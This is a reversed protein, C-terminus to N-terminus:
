TAGKGLVKAVEGGFTDGVGKAAQQLGGTAKQGVTMGGIAAYRTLSQTPDENIDGFSSVGAGMWRMINDPIKDILKFSATALMYVIITYIITFFFQDVKGRSISVADGISVSPNASYGTLNDVVLLWIFNLIRVQASFIVVAAVLGFVTLIPRIFIEFILFYGNSAADGPLGDGDIRLHALAWLPIGVMAEFITKVWSGVAFLFYLFPLFPLIYFLVFGATLGMFAVGNAVKSIVESVKINSDAVMEVLGGVSLGFTSVAINLVASDVLSKGVASLQAIPHIYANQGRMDFLGSTGFIIEIIGEFANDTKAGQTAQNAPAQTWYTMLRCLAQGIKKGEAGQELSISRDGAITQCFQDPGGVAQKDKSGQANVEEMIAPMRDRSPTQSVTTIFAGNVRNITNYWIGAGGWGYDLIEDTMAISTNNSNFNSWATILAAEMGEKMEDIVYQRPRSGITQTTESECAAGAGCAPLYGSACGIGCQLPPQMGLEHETIRQTLWVLEQQPTGSTTFWLSKILNFYYEQVPYTGSDALTAALGSIDGVRVRVDGCTPEVSGLENEYIDDNYKGFRIIVDSNHYFTLGESFATAATVPLFERTDTHWPEIAKVFYPKIKFAAYLPPLTPPSGTIDNAPDKEVRWHAYACGHILSMMYLVPTVDPPRPLALLAESEGTPNQQGATTAASAIIAENFTNWANTAFGSGYKAAYLGIYQGTNMGYNLPLLLGIAMVIRIPVWINQFRQGFPTGSTATEGIVVIVFYLFILVAVVLLGMSYFQFMSQLAIHFPTRWDGGGGGVTTCTGVSNCFLDPIGFVNDLLVFAIDVLDGGTSPDPTDFLSLAMAPHIIYGYLIMLVQLAMLVVGALLAVFIILQDLTRVSIVLNNAAQAIVNHIGYRGINQPLLYPHGPPILRVIAYVNAMLFALYGFGSAFLNRARPLVEPLLVYKAVKAVKVGSM